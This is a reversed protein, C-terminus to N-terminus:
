QRSNWEEWSKRVNEKVKSFSDEVTMFKEPNEEVEQQLLSKEILGLGRLAEMAEPYKKADIVIKRIDGKTARKTKRGAIRPM